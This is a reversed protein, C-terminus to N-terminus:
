IIKYRSALKEKLHGKIHANFAAKDTLVASCITCIERYPRPQQQQQQQQQEQQQEQQQQQIPPPKEPRSCLM